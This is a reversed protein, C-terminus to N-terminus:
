AAQKAADLAAQEKMQDNVAKTLRKGVRFVACADIFDAERALGEYEAYGGEPTVKLLMTRHIPGYGSEEAALKYGALQGHSGPGVWGTKLDVITRKGEILALLDVRGAFQYAASYVGFESAIPEPRVDAWWSIVGQAPGREDEAVDALSPVRGAALEELIKQHVHTGAQAKKDRNTFWDMGRRAAANSMRTAKDIDLVPGIASPSALRTKQVGTWKGNKNHVEGYYHHNDDNYFFEAGSPTVVREYPSYDITM